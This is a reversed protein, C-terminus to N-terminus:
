TNTPQVNASEYVRWQYRSIENLWEQTYYQRNTINSESLEIVRYVVAMALDDDIDIIDTDLIPPVPQRIFLIDDILVLAKYATNDTLLSLPKANFATDNLAKAVITSLITTPIVTGGRNINNLLTKFELYLM